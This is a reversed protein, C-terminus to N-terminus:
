LLRSTNYPLVSTYLIGIVVIINRILIGRHHNNPESTSTEKKLGAKNPFQETVPVQYLLKKVKLHADIYFYLYESHSVTVKIDKKLLTQKKTHEYSENFYAIM